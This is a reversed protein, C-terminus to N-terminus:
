ADKKSLLAAIPLADESLTIAAIHNSPFENSATNYRESRLAYWGEDSEIDSPASFMVLEDCYVHEESGKGVYIKQPEFSVDEISCKMNDACYEVFVRFQKPEFVFTREGARTSDVICILGTYSAKDERSKPGALFSCTKDILAKKGCSKNITETKTQVEAVVDQETHKNEQPPDAAVLTDEVKVDSNDPADAKSERVQQQKQIKKLESLESLTQKLKGQLNEVLVKSTRIQEQAAKYEDNHKESQASADKLARIESRLQAIIDDRVGIEQSIEDKAVAIQDHFLDSLENWRTMQEFSVSGLSKRINEPEMKQILGGNNESRYYFPKGSLLSLEMQEDLSIVNSVSVTHDPRVLPKTNTYLMTLRQLPVRLQGRKNVVMSSGILWSLNSDKYQSLLQRHSDTLEFDGEEIVLEHTNIRSQELMFEDLDEKGKGKSLNHLPELRANIADVQSVVTVNSAVQQQSSKKEDKQEGDESDENVFSISPMFYYVIGAFSLFAIGYLIYDGSM